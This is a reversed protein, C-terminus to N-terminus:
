RVSREGNMVAVSVKVDEVRRFADVGKVVAVDTGNEGGAIYDFRRRRDICGDVVLAGEVVDVSVVYHLPAVGLPQQLLLSLYGVVGVVSILQEIDVVRQICVQDAQPM